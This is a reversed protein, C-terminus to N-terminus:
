PVTVSQAEAAEAAAEEKRIQEEAQKKQANRQASLLRMMTSEELSPSQAATKGFPSSQPTNVKASRFSEFSAKPKLGGERSKLSSVPTSSASDLGPFARRGDAKAASAPTSPASQEKASPSTGHQGSDPDKGEFWSVSELAEWDPGQQSKADLVAAHAGVISSYVVIGTAVLKKKQREGIREKRDKKLFAHEIKGFKSFLESLRTKDMAEGRGERVWRVKITRDIGPVNEGGVPAPQEHVVGAVGAAEGNETKDASEAVERERRWREEEMMKRRRMGEEALRRFERERREEEHVEGERRRKFVGERKELEEVDRKRKGSLEERKREAQARAAYKADYLAKTEPDYLVEYAITLQHFKEGASPDDPNKDPHYRPATKRYARRIDPPTASPTLSLLAYYDTSSSAAELLTDSPM